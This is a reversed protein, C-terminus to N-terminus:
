RGDPPFIKEIADNVVGVLGSFAVDIKPPFAATFDGKELKPFKAAAVGVVLGVTKADGKEDGFTATDVADALVGM